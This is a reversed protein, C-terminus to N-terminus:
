NVVVCAPAASTASRLMFAVHDKAWRELARRSHLTSTLEVWPEHEDLLEPDGRRTVVCAMGRTDMKLRCAVHTGQGPSCVVRILRLLGIAMLAGGMWCTWFTLGRQAVPYWTTTPPPPELQLLAFTSHSLCTDLRQEGFAARLKLTLVGAGVAFMVLPDAM